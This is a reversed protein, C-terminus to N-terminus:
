YEEKLVQEDQANTVTITDGGNNWIASGSGWYLDNGADTGEGTHLTLTEGAEIVTGSSITYERSSGDKVTWGSVDLSTSGTNELVLYEDNLNERDDGEADAHITTVEFPGSENVGSE